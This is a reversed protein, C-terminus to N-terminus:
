TTEGSPADTAGDTPAETAGDTPAETAGDTGTTPEDQVLGSLASDYALVPRFNM